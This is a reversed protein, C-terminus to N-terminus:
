EAFFVDPEKRAANKGAFAKRAVAYVPGNFTRAKQPCVAICATCSICRDKDTKRPTEKAIAGVPCVEVCIGCANCKSDGSPHLPVAGPKCYPSNGKVKITENGSFAAFAKTCKKAFSEITDKDKQDPRGSAVIPFISHQAVFAAAAVVVFGNVKLNDTLELLADDYERNGYVVMAIAPTNQGKFKTLSDMCVAPVRGAFVPVAFVTPAALVIEQKQPQRLLDYEKKEGPLNDALTILVSKTTGSPSFYVLNVNSLMLM